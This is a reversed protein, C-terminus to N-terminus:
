GILRAMWEDKARNARMGLWSDPAVSDFVHWGGPWVHLEADGGAAWIAEAFAVDEDRFAEASGCDIYAPPLRALDTARAPAAYPSVDRTGRRAGLLADWGTDNSGRTWMARHENQAHAHTPRDDLMPCVLMQGAIRPGGRDRALLAVGAALGGGASVGVVVVRDPDAGLTPAEQALWRLGAYCDEVPIPDPHAPALRYGISAGIADHRDVWAIVRELFMRHDGSVMGGGHINYIAPRDTRSSDRRRVIAIPIPDGAHGRAELDILEVDPHAALAANTATLDPAAAQIGALMEPSLDGPSTDLVASLVPELESDYPPRPGRNNVRRVSVCCRGAIAAM